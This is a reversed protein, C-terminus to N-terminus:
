AADAENLRAPMTEIQVVSIDDSAPALNVHELVADILVPLKPTSLDDRLLFGEPRRTGWREGDINEAETLGDTYAYLLDGTGLERSHARHDFEAEDVVGLPASHSAIREFTSGDRRRILM